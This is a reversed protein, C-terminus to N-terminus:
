KSLWNIFKRIIAFGFVGCAFTISIAFYAIFKDDARMLLFAICLNLLTLIVTLKM